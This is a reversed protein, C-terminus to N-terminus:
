NIFSTFIVCQFLLSSNQGYSMDSFCLGLKKRISEEEKKREFM